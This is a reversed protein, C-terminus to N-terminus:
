APNGPRPGAHELNTYFARTRPEAQLPESIEVWHAYHKTQKHATIAAEDRYREVLAFRMPDDRDALLEFSLIGAEKRSEAANALTAAVWAELAEERVRIRVILTIM